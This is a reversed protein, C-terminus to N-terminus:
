IDWNDVGAVKLAPEFDSLVLGTSSKLDSSNYSRKVGRLILLKLFTNFDYFEKQEDATLTNFKDDRYKKIRDFLEKFEPELLIALNNTNDSVITETQDLENSSRVDTKLVKIKILEDKLAGNEKTVEKLKDEYIAREEDDMPNPVLAEVPEIKKPEIFIKTRIFESVSIGCDKIAMYTIEKKEKPTVQFSITERKREVDSITTNKEEKKETTEM